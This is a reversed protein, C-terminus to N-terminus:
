AWRRDRSGVPQCRHRLRPKGAVGDVTPRPLRADLRGGLGVELIAVDVCRDAFHLMAMAAIIEFYTPGHEEAGGSGALRDMAEVAPRVRRVLDALEEGSCPQGNTAIREEIRDLHPSTFLGTRYGAACLIAGLMAATSGKGKTGAVHVVRLCRHPAGLRALLEKMRELKLDRERYPVARDREYNIRGNLFHLASERGEHSSDVSPVNSCM